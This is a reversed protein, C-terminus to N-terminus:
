RRERKRTDARSRPVTAPPLARPVSTRRIPKLTVVDPPRHSAADLSRAPPRSPEPPWPHSRWHVAPRAPPWYPVHSRSPGGRRLFQVSVTPGRRIQCAALARRPLPPPARAPPRLRRLEACRPHLVPDFGDDGVRLLGNGRAVVYNIANYM